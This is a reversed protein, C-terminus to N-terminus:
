SVTCKEPITAIRMSLITKNNCRKSYHIITTDKTLNLMLVSLFWLTKSNEVLSRTLFFSIHDCQLYGVHILSLLGVNYLPLSPIM